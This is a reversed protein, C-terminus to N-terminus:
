KDRYRSPQRREVDSQETAHRSGTELLPRVSGVTLGLGDDRFSFSNRQVRQEARWYPVMNVDPLSVPGVALIELTGGTVTGATQRIAGAAELGVGANGATVNQTLM